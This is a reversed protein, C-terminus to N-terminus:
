NFYIPAQTDGGLETQLCTGIVKIVAMASKIVVTKNLSNVCLSKFKQKAFQLVNSMCNSHLANTYPRYGDKTAKKGKVYM